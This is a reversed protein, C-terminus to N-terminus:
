SAHPKEKTLPFRITFTSGKGTNNAATIAAHHLKLSQVVISLGIGTGDDRFTVFPEFIKELQDPKIGKGTDSISIVVCRGDREQRTSGPEDGPSETDSCDTELATKVTLVGGEPMSQIANLLINLFVQRM